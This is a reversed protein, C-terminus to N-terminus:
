NQRFLFVAVSPMRATVERVKVARSHRLMDRKVEAVRKRLRHQCIPALFESRPWLSFGVDFPTLSNLIKEIATITGTKQPIVPQGLDDFACQQMEIPLPIKQVGPAHHGIVDVRKERWAFNVHTLDHVRPLAKDGVFAVFGEPASAPKPRPLGKVAINAAFTVKAIGQSIDFVIGDLCSQTLFSFVPSPTACSSADIRVGEAHQISHHTRLVARRLRAYWFKVIGSRAM